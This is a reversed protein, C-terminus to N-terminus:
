KKDKPVTYVSYVTNQTTGIAILYPCEKMSEATKEAEETSGEETVLIGWIHRKKNM